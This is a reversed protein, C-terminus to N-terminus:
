FIEVVPFYGDATEATGSLVYNSIKADQLTFNDVQYLVAGNGDEVSLTYLIPLNNADKVPV